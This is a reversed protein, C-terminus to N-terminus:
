RCYPIYFVLIFFLIYLVTIESKYAFQLAAKTKVKYRSHKTAWNVPKYFPAQEIDMNRLRSTHFILNVNSRIDIVHIIFNLM